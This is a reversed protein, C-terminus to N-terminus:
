GPNHHAQQEVAAMRACVSLTPPASSAGGRAQSQQAEAVARAKTKGFLKASCGLQADDSMPEGTRRHLYTDVRSENSASYSRRDGPPSTYM